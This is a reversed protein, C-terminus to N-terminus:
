NVPTYIKPFYLHHDLWGGTFYCWLIHKCGFVYESRGFFYIWLINNAMFDLIRRFFLTIPWYFGANWSAGQIVFSSVKANTLSGAWHPEGPKQFKFKPLWTPGLTMLEGLSCHSRLNGDKIEVGSPLFPVHWFFFCADHLDDAPLNNKWIRFCFNDNCERFSVDCRFIPPQFVLKRKPHGIKLPSSNTEPLTGKKSLNQPPSFWGLLFGTPFGPIKHPVQVQIRRSNDGLDLEIFSKLILPDPGFSLM